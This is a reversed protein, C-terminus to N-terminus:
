DPFQHLLASINIVAQLGGSKGTAPQVVSLLKAVKPMTTHFSTDFCAIQKLKPFRKKFIEILRIEEPLHDPDYSSIKKLEEILPLTILEPETHKMGHIIRHGIAKISNFMEQKELWDILHEAAEYHDSAKISSGQTQQDILNNLCLKAKKTGINEIQGNFIQILLKEIKYLSFKISSSGGNLTLISDDKPM